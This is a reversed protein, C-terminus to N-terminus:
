EPEWIGKSAKLTVWSGLNSLAGRVPVEVSVALIPHLLGLGLHYWSGRASLFYMGM